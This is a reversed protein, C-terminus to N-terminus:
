PQFHSLGGPTGIWLNPHAPDQTGVALSLLQNAALGSDEFPPSMEEVITWGDGARRLAFLGAHTGAWMLESIADYALANVPRSFANNLPSQVAGTVPDYRVLGSSTGLWVEWEASQAVARLTAGILVQSELLVLEWAAGQSRYLGTPGIAWGTGDLGPSLALIPESVGPMKQRYGTRPAFRYIGGDWSSMWLESGDAATALSQVDNFGDIPHHSWPVLATSAPDHRFLGQPTGVWLVPGEVDDAVALGQILNGLHTAPALPDPQRIREPPAQTELFRDPRTPSWHLLGRDTGLWAGDAEDCVLKACHGEYALLSRVETDEVWLLRGGSAALLGDQMPLIATVASAPWHDQRSVRRSALDIHVLGDLKGVWVSNGDAVLSLLSPRTGLQGFVGGQSAFLGQSSCVWAEGRADIAMSRPPEVGPLAIECAIAGSFDLQVVAEPTCAWVRGDSDTALCRIPLRRLGPNPHPTWGGDEFRYLGGHDPACWAQRVRDVAIAAVGNGPLGHESMYRTFSQHGPYWRLVGGSTALWLTDSQICRAVDRVQRQHAWNTWKKMRPEARQHEPGLGMELVPLFDLDLVPLYDDDQGPAREGGGEAVIATGARLEEESM